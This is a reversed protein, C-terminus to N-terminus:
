RFLDEAGGARNAPADLNYEGPEEFTLIDALEFGVKEGIESVHFFQHKNYNFPYHYCSPTQVCLYEFDHSTALVAHIEEPDIRLAEGRKILHYTLSRGGTDFLAIGLKGSLVIYWEFLGRMSAGPEYKSVQPHRHINEEPRNHLISVMEGDAGSRSTTRPIVYSLALVGAVFEPKSSVSDNSWHTAMGTAPDKRESLRCVGVLRDGEFGSENLAPGAYPRWWCPATAFLAIPNPAEASDGTPAQEIELRPHAPMLFTGAESLVYSAEEFLLTLRSGPPNFLLIESDCQELSADKFSANINGKGVYVKVCGDDRSHWAIPTSLLDYKKM